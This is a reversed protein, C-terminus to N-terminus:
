ALGSDLKPTLLLMALRAAQRNTHRNGSGLGEVGSCYLRLKPKLM